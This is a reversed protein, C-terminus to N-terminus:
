LHPWLGLWAEERCVHRVTNLQSVAPLLDDSSHSPGQLMSYIMGAKVHLKYPEMRNLIKTDWLEFATMWFYLSSIYGFLIRHLSKHIILSM